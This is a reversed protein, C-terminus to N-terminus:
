GLRVPLDSGYSAYTYVCSVQRRTSRQSSKEKLILRRLKHSGWFPYLHRLIDLGDAVGVRAAITECVSTSNMLRFSTMKRTIIRKPRHNRSIDLSDPLPKRHGLIWNCSTLSSSSPCLLPKWHVSHLSYGPGTSSVSLAFPGTLGCGPLKLM